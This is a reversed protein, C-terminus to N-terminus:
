YKIIIDINLKLRMFNIGQFDSLLNPWSFFINCVKRIVYM